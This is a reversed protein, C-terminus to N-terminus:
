DVTQVEDVRHQEQLRERTALVRYNQWAMIIAGTVLVIPVAIHPHALLTVLIAVALLVLSPKFYKLTALRQKM